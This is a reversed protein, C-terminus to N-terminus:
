MKKGECTDSKVTSVSIRQQYLWCQPASEYGLRAQTEINPGRCVPTVPLHNLAADPCSPNKAPLSRDQGPNMTCM